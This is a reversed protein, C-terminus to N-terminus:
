CLSIYVFHFIHSPLPLFLFLLVPHCLHGSKLNLGSVKEVDNENKAFKLHFVICVWLTVWKLKM